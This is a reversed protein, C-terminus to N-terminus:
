RWSMRRIFLYPKRTEVNENEQIHPAYPNGEAAPDLLLVLSKFAGYISNLIRM